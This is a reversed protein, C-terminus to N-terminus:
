GERCNPKGAVFDLKLSLVAWGSCGGCGLLIDQAKTRSSIAEQLIYLAFEPALFRGNLSIGSFIQCTNRSKFHSFSCRSSNECKHLTSVPLHYKQPGTYRLTRRRGNEVVVFAVTNRNSSAHSTSLPYHFLPTAIHLVAGIGAIGTLSLYFRAEICLASLDALSITGALAHWLLAFTGQLHSLPKSRPYKVSKKSTNASRSSPLLM